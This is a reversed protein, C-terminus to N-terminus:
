INGFGVWNPCIYDDPMAWPVYPNDGTNVVQKIILSDGWYYSEIGIEKGESDFWIGDKLEDGTSICVLKRIQTWQEDKTNMKYKFMIWADTDNWTPPYVGESNCLADNWKMEMKCDLLGPPMMQTFYPYESVLDNWFQQGEGNYILGPQRYHPYIPDDYAPDGLMANILYSKFIHAQFNFGWEDFGTIKTKNIVKSSKLEMNSTADELVETNCSTFLFLIVFIASLSIIKKM